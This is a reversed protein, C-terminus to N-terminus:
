FKTKRLFINFIWILSFNLCELLTCSRLALNKSVRPDLCTVSNGDKSLIANKIIIGGFYTMRVNYNKVGTKEQLEKTAEGFDGYKWSGSENSHPYYNPYDLESLNRWLAVEGKIQHVMHKENSFSYIGNM